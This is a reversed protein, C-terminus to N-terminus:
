RKAAPLRFEFPERVLQRVRRGQLIAPTFVTSQLADHVASSFLPDTSGVIGFHGPEVRGMTDVVFEVLVMGEIQAARLSPPYAVEPRHAADTRAVSDVQEATYITQTRIMQELTEPTISAGLHKPETDPGRSWLLIAGCESQGRVGSYRSPVNSGLYLEIGELTTPDFADLDVSGVSLAAGDLWILPLCERGRMQLRAPGPRGRSLHVGPQRQLMDTLQSPKERELDARTIFKGQTGRELREYYGALRGSYRGREAMVVVRHLRLVVPALTLQVDDARDLVNITDPRYGLRRVILRGSPMTMSLRFEGRENTIAREGNGDLRVEAANLGVRAASDRVVGKLVATAQAGVDEALLLVTGIAFCPAAIRRRHSAWSTRAINTTM